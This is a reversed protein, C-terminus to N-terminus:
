EGIDRDEVAPGAPRRGGEDLAADAVHQERPLIFGEKRLFLEALALEIDDYRRDRDKGLRGDGNEVAICLAVAIELEGFGIEFIEVRGLRLVDDALIVVTRDARFGLCFISRLERLHVEDGDIVLEAAPLRRLLAEEVGASHEVLNEGLRFSLRLPSLM